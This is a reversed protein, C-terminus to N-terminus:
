FLAPITLRAASKYPDPTDEPVPVFPDGSFIFGGSLAALGDIDASYGGNNCPTHGNCNKMVEIDASVFQTGGGLSHGVGIAKECVLGHFESAPDASAIRM